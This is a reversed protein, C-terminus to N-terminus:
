QGVTQAQSTPNAVENSQGLHASLAKWTKAGVKGDAKLGNQAQFEEIAKKTKPGLNGDIKGSYFGANKLAQQIAKPSPKDSSAVGAAMEGSAQPLAEANDVIVPVGANSGATADTVSVVNESSVGNTMSDTEETKNKKSCGILATVTFVAVMLLVFKKM